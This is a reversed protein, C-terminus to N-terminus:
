KQEPDLILKEAAQYLRESLTLNQHVFGNLYGDRGTCRDVRFYLDLFLTHIVLKFM